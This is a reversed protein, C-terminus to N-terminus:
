ALLMSAALGIIIGKTFIEEGVRALDLRGFM